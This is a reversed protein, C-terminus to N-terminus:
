ILSTLSDTSVLQKEDSNRRKLEVKGNELNKASVVVRVPIGLLDSDNFKVGPSEKRDDWLVRMGANELEEVIDLSAQDLEQTPKGLRLVHVDFPAIGEPWVIGGADGRIELVTEMIATLDVCMWDVIVSGPKGDERNFSSERRGRAADRRFGGVHWGALSEYVEGCVPCRGDVGPAAIDAVKMHGPFDREPVVGVCHYDRENAGAVYGRSLAVSDDCVVVVDKGVNLPSAFGPVMGKGLVIDESAMELRDCGSAAALKDMSVDLDGRIIGTVLGSSSECLITKLCLHPPIGLFRSLDEITEVGPTAVKEPGNQDVGPSSGETPEEMKEKLSKEVPAFADVYKKQCRICHLLSTRGRNDEVVYAAGTGGHSIAATLREDVDCAALLARAMQMGEAFLDPNFDKEGILRYVRLIVGEREGLPTNHKECRAERRLSFLRRPLEKYSQVFRRTVDLLNDVHDGKLPPDMEEAGSKKLLDRATHELRKLAAVGFPTLMYSGAGTECFVGARKALGGEEDGQKRFTKMFAKSMRM